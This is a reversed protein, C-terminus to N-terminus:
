KRGCRRHCDHWHNRCHKESPNDPHCKDCQCNCFGLKGNRPGKDCQQATYASPM